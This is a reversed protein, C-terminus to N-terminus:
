KALVQDLYLWEKVFQEYNDGVKRQIENSFVYKKYKEIKQKEFMNGKKVWRTAKLVINGNILYGRVSWGM